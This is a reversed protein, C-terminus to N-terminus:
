VSMGCQGFKVGTMTYKSQWKEHNETTEGSSNRINGHFLKLVSGNSKSTLRGNCEVMVNSAM